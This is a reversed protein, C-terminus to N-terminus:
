EILVFGAWSYPDIFRERMERQTVRFADPITMDNELWNKYFQTMFASTQQDPVQWLSMILYKVGAIKFARQLGYVGENGQIDGLGTECASLVVLETNSLNIQSIEYATLIGDEAGPVIPMGTRWAHNGGALILGSRILPNDSRKYVNSEGEKRLEKSDPLFFGHTAIHLVRPSDGSSNIKHFIEEVADYSSLNTVNYGATRMIESINKAEKETYPLSSWYEIYNSSSDQRGVCKEGRSTYSFSDLAHLTRLLRTSDIDYSIGGIILSNTNIRENNTSVVVSRTSGLQVLRYRDSLTTDLAVPIAGMNIRHILGTGSYYVTKIGLLSQELPKWLLEYLSVDKQKNGLVISRSLSKYLQEVYIQKRDGNRNLLLELMIENCLPVYCPADLGPKIILAAYLFSDKLNPFLVQFRLFELAAEDAELVSQVERWRVHPLVKVYGSVSKTINSELSNVLYELEAVKKRESIPKLYEKSLIFRYSKLLRLLSDAEPSGTTMLNTRRAASQLFGKQFLADDYAICAMRGSFYGSHLYSPIYSLKQNEKKQYYGLDQESSFQAAQALLDHVIQTTTDMLRETVEYKGITAYLNALNKLSNAYSSHAKGLTQERIEKSQKFLYEAKEYMKMDSYLNALNNLSSAYEPHVKGLTAERIDMASIYMKEAKEYMKMDYYLNALNNLSSAYDSHRKDIQEWIEISELGLTEAKENQKMVRYLNALNNIGSAYESSIRGLVKLRINNSELYLAEAKKYRGMEYYLNALNNISSAYDKSMKGTIKEWIDKSEIYLAEAKDYTGLTKYLIALNNITSAYDESNKGPTKERIEKAKNHYLESKEYEGIQSYLLALNNLSRAYEMHNRGFIRRRIELSTFYYKEAKYYNSNKFDITGRLNLISAYEATEPGPYIVVKQEALDLTKKAEDYKQKNINDKSVSILSDIESKQRIQDVSQSTVSEKQFFVFLFSLLLKKM